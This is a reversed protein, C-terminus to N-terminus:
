VDIENEKEGFLEIVSGRISKRSSTNKEEM